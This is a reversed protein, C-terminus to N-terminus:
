KLFLMKKTDKFEGAHISYFFMGTSIQIGNANRGDWLIQYSGPARNEDLLVRVLQGTVNYISLRVQVENSHGAPIDFRIQTEPNFPNPYNQHLAFVEPVFALDASIGEKSQLTAARFGDVLGSIKFDAPITALDKTAFVLQLLEASPMNALPQDNFGGVILMGAEQSQGDLQIWDATLDTRELGVFELKDSPYSFNFGFADLGEPNDVM